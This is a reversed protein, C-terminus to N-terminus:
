IKDAFEPNIINSMDWVQVEAFDKFYDIEHFRITADVVKYPFLLIFIPKNM